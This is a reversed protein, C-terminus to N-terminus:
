SQEKRGTVNRRNRDASGPRRTVRRWLTRVGHGRKAAHAVRHSGVLIFGDAHGAVGLATSSSRLGEVVERYRLLSAVIGRRDGVAADSDGENFAPDIVLERWQGAIGIGPIVTCRSRADTCIPSHRDVDTGAVRPTGFSSAM